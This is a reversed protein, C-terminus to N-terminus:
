GLRSFFQSKEPNKSSFSFKGLKFNPWFPRIKSKQLKWVAWFHGFNSNKFFCFFIQGFIAWFPTFRRFYGFIAMKSIKKNKLKPWFPRFYRLVGFVASFPWFHGIKFFFNKQIKVLIQIKWVLVGGWVAWFPSFHPLIALFSSQKSKSFFFFFFFIEFSQKFNKM